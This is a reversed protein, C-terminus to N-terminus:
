IDARKLLRQFGEWFEQRRDDTEMLIEHMAGEITVHECDPLRACIKEHSANDVLQEEAASAVFVPITVEKLIKPKSFTTLIDLSAGLWGWTVPGLELDPRADILARQLQWRRKDHTVINTEFTEAPGPQIAYDGSRGTARMAWVLYRMGLFHSKLGWMPACFAAADVEVLKQSIAALAIAGGMSHAVSVYPRPLHDQLQKLGGELAGMFTEFRDIHGKRTDDLLRESLGQGPWDLIVVAFGMSQLERGVEFYKEIFETRGPCVIATGRPDSKSLAPAICARLNRGASGKFWIIEAGQPPPNGPVGVFAESQNFSESPM